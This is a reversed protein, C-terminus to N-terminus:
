YKSALQGCAADIDQGLSVRITAKINNLELVKKFKVIKNKTSGKIGKISTENYPIINVLCLMGRLLNALDYADKESDNIGHLMVYEFTIRRHTKEIYQKCALILEWLPYRKSVPMIKNRIKDSPAHLSIALNVQKFDDAFKNIKPVIGCTSVTINRSGINLAVPDRLMDISKVVEDYNAFPEGMGMYVVHTVKKGQKHLMNSFYLVQDAIEEYTLNRKFSLTGTACFKCNMACGVQSSVCVTNRGDAFRMLVSEILSGDKLKFLVKITEENKSRAENVPTISYIPVNDRLFEKVNKPLTSMKDYENAGNKFIDKFVQNARYSPIGSLKLEDRLDKLFKM